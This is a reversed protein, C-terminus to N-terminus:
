WRVPSEQVVTMAEFIRDKSQSQVYIGTDPGDSFNSKNALKILTHLDEDIRANNYAGQLGTIKCKENLKRQQHVYM